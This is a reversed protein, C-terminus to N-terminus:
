PFTYFFHAKYVCDRFDLYISCLFLIFIQLNNFGSNNISIDMRGHKSVALYVMTTVEQDEKEAEREQEQALCWVFDIWFM